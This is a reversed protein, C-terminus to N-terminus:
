RNELVSQVVAEFDEKFVEYYEETAPGNFFGYTRVPKHDKDLIILTPYANVRSLTPFVMSASAKDAKGGFALKADSEMFTRWNELRERAYPLDDRTEFSLGVWEFGTGPHARLWDDIFNSLDMSNSCWTGFIQLLIPKGKLAPDNHTITRGDLGKLSFEFPQDKKSYAVNTFDPIEASADKTASWGEKYNKGYLWLGVLKGPGLLSAQFIFDHAGDFTSLYLNKGKVNGQLYRFDGTATLITGSIRNAEQKFLGISTISDDESTFNIAWRGSFDTVPEDSDPFFRYELGYDAKFTEKYDESYNKVFVGELHDGQFAAVIYSDFLNMPLYISDQKVKSDRILLREEANLLYVRWINDELKMEFNFPLQMGQMDLTGRWIGERPQAIAALCSFLTVMLISLFRDIKAMTM